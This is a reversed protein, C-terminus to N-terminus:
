RSLMNLGETRDFPGVIGEASKQRDMSDGRSSGPVHARPRLCIPLDGLTLRSVKGSIGAADVELAETCTGPKPDLQRRVRESQRM